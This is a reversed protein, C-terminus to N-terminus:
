GPITAPWTMASAAASTISFRHRHAPPRFRWPHWCGPRSREQRAVLQQLARGEVGHLDRLLERAVSGEFRSNRWRPSIDHRCNDASSRCAKRWCSGSSIRSTRRSPVSSRTSPPRPTGRQARQAAPLLIGELGGPRLATATSIPAAPGGRWRRGRGCRRASRDRRRATRSGRRPAPCSRQAQVMLRPRRGGRLDRVPARPAAGHRGSGSRRPKRRRRFSASDLARSRSCGSATATIWISSMVSSPRTMAGSTDSCITPPASRLRSCSAASGDRAAFRFPIGALQLVVLERQADVARIAFADLGAQRPRHARRRSGTSSPSACNWSASCAPTAMRPRSAVEGCTSTSCAQTAAPSARRAAVVRTKKKLSVSFIFDSARM